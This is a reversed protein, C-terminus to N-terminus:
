RGLFSGGGSGWGGLLRLRLHRGLGAAIARSGAPRAESGLVALVPPTLASLRGPAGGGLLGLGGLGQAGGGGGRRGRLLVYHPCAYGGIRSVSFAAPVRTPVCGPPRVVVARPVHVRAAFSDRQGASWQGLSRQGPGGGGAGAFAAGGGVGVAGCSAAAASRAAPSGHALVLVVARRGTPRAGSPPRTSLLSWRGPTSGRRAGVGLVPARGGDGWGGGAARADLRATPPVTVPRRRRMACLCVRRCSSVRWSCVGQAAGLAWPRWVAGASYTAPLLARPWGAACGGSAPRVGCPVLPLAEGWATVAHCLHRPAPGRVCLPVRGYPPPPGPGPRLAVRRLPLPCANSGVFPFLTYGRRSEGGGLM